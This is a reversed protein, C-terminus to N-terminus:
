RFMGPLLSHWRPSAMRSSGGGSNRPRATPTTAAAAAAPASNARAAIAAKATVRPCEQEPADSDLQPDAAFAVGTALGLCVTLLLRSM